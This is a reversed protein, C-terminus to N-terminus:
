NNKHCKYLILTVNWKCLQYIVNSWVSGPSNLCAISNASSGSLSHIEYLHDDAKFGVVANGSWQMSGCRYTFVTFSQFGNTILVGQFTNAKFKSLFMEAIVCMCSVIRYNNVSVNGNSQGFQPVNNWKALLMWIGAFTSQKQQRVFRSVQNLLNSSTTSNHVEYSVSGTGTINANAGFPAVIYDLNNSGPM